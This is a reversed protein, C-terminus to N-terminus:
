QDAHQITPIRESLWPKNGIASHTLPSLVILYSAYFLPPGFVEAM